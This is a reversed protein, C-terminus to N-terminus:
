GDNGKGVGAPRRTSLLEVMGVHSADTAIMLATRGRNDRADIKAARDLLLGAVAEADLAGAGDAYGAAWMLATLDNGYRANVDVGADLLRRVIPTFGLAAAYVIATKGTKDRANPDAGRALLIEVIRENGKFAAAALPAVDARGALKPDAGKELLRRVVALRDNEAAVYLATSGALNRADIAAGKELLLDVLPLHGSRAAFTLPAAGLRDRADVSAGAALLERALPLCGKDAAQFLVANLQVSSIEPKILEFRREVERCAANEAAFAPAAAALVGPSAALAFALRIRPAIACTMARWSVGLSLREAYGEASQSIRHKKRVADYPMRAQTPSADMGLACWQHCRPM